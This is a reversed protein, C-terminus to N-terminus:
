LVVLSVVKCGMAEQSSLFQMFIQKEFLLVDMKAEGLM